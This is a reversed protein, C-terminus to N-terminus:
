DYEPLPLYIIQDQYEEDFSGEAILILEDITQSISLKDNLILIGPIHHGQAIHDALHIPMSKRNNTVLVFNHDECWCLIEPDLTGRTPTGPDGVVWMILSPNQRVFQRQYVKDVNEDLLYKLSM